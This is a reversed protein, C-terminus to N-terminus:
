FGYSLQAYVNFDDSRIHQSAAVPYGFGIQYSLDQISGKFGATAGIMYDGSDRLTGEGFVQGMDLGIYAKHQDNLPINLTNKWVVGHEGRISRREDFGRLTGRSGLTMMQGVPMLDDLNIQGNLESQWTLEHNFLKLPQQYNLNANLKRYQGNWEPQGVIIDPADSWRPISQAYNLSANLQGQKFYETHSLGANVSVIDRRQVAIETGNVYNNSMRRAIKANLETKRSEDRYAVYNLGFGVNRSKGEYIINQFAGAVTQKYKSSGTTLTALWRGYPVSWSLSGSRSFDNKNFVDSGTNFSLNLSDYLGLPSDVALSGSWNFKDAAGGGTNDVTIAGHVRKQTQSDLVINSGGLTESPKIALTAESQGSLRRIQELAQDVQRQQYFAPKGGLVMQLKGIATEDHVLNSVTGPILILRLSSAQLNQEPIAVKTTIFGKSILAQNLQKQLAQIQPIGLCQGAASSAYGSLWQWRTALAQEDGESTAELLDIKDIQFCQDPSSQGLQLDELEPLQSRISAEQQLQSQARDLQEAQERQIRDLELDGLPQQALAPLTSVIVSLLTLRLAFRNNVSTIFM